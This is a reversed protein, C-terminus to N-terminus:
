NEAGLQETSEAELVTNLITEMLIGFAEDKTKSFLGTFIESDLTFHLQAM